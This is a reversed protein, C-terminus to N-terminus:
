KDGHYRSEFDELTLISKKYKAFNIGSPCFKAQFAALGKTPCKTTGGSKLYALLWPTFGFGQSTGHKSKWPGAISTLDKAELIFCLPEPQAFSIHKGRRSIELGVFAFFHNAKYPPPPLYNYGGARFSEKGKVDFTLQTRNQDNLAVMLDVAKTNGLTIYAEYGLRHLQSFFWFESAMNTNIGGM